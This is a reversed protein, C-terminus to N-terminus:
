KFAISRIRKLSMYEIAERPGAVALPAFFAPGRYKESYLELVADVM